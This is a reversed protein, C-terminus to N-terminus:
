KDEEYYFGDDINKEIEENLEIFDQVLWKLKEGIEAEADFKKSEKKISSLNLISKELRLLEAEIYDANDEMTQLSEESYTLM